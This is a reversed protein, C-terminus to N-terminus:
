EPKGVLASELQSLSADLDHLENESLKRKGYRVRYFADAFRSLIERSDVDRSALHPATDRAFEAPTVNDKRIWGCSELMKELRYYFDFETNQKRRRRSRRQRWNPLFWRAFIRILKYIGVLLFGGILTLLGAQWNFWEGQLVRGFGMRRLFGVVSDASQELGEKVPNYIRQQQTEYTLGVVYDDWFIQGYDFIQGIRDLWVSRNGAAFIDEDGSPTPDLQLWGGYATTEAESYENTSWQGPELFAEVWAHTHLQRIVYFDGVTNYEGGYYGVVVRSPIGQTRLMLALASAFYECHGEKSNILFDEVPDLSKDTRTPIDLTYEYNGSKLFHAELARATGMRDGPKVGSSAVIDDALRKINPLWRESYALQHEREAAKLAPSIGGYGPDNTGANIDVLEPIVSKQIGRRFGTTTLQYEFRKPAAAEGMKGSRLKHGYNIQSTLPEFFVSKTNPTSYVPAASFLVNSGNTELIFDQVVLDHPTGSIELDQHFRMQKSRAYHWSGKRYTSLVAGRLYPDEMLKYPENTGHKSFAVRMVPQPNELIRGFDNLAPKETFGVSSQKGNSSAWAEGRRPILFFLIASGILTLCAMSGLQRVLAWSLMQNSLNERRFNQFRAANTLPNILRRNPKSPTSDQKKRRKRRVSRAGIGLKRSTFPLCERHALFLIMASLALFMYLVLLFGFVFGLNLAAAVVVQLLSLVILQWYTRVDKEQFNLIMQLYILLKAIGLLRTETYADVVDVITLVFAVVAAINAIIRNFRFWGYWDAVFLSVIAVVVALIALGFGQESSATLLLTAFAGLMAINFQLYRETM